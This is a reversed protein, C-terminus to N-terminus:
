KTFNINNDFCFEIARQHGCKASLRLYFDRQSYDKNFVEEFVAYEWYIIGLTEDKVDGAIVDAITWENDTSNNLYTYQASLAQKIYYETQSKNRLDYYCDAIQTLTGARFQLDDSISLAKQYYIIADNLSGVAAYATAIDSYIADSFESFSGTNFIESEWDKGVRILQEYEKCSLLAYIYMFYDSDNLPTARMLEKTKTIVSEFQRKDGYEWIEDRLEEIQEKSLSTSAQHIILRGKEISVRGLKEIASQGMLLPVNQGDKVTAVVDKLHLGGIEFDRLNVVDVDVISGDAIHVQTKGLYDSKKLYGNDEMFAAMSKSFSVASAGTDFIFKMKVGNVSCPVRYVGGDQEM